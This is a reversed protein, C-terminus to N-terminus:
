SVNWVFTVPTARMIDVKRGRKFSVEESGRMMLMEEARPERWREVV